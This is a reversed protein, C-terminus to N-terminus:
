GDNTWIIAQRRNPVLGNDSGIITLESLCIHTVQCWHTLGNLSLSTYIHWYDLWVQNLLPKDGPQCWAMMQVLALINNIPVSPFLNFCKWDLFHILIHRRHFLGNQRPRLTNLPNYQVYHLQFEKLMGNYNLWVKWHMNQLTLVLMTSIIPFHVKLPVQISTEM